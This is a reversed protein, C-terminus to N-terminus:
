ENLEKIDDVSEVRIVGPYFYFASPDDLDGVVYIRPLNNQMFSALAIGFEVYMGRADAAKESLLIFVDSSVVGEIDANVFDTVKEQNQVYPKLGSQTTWDVTIEHGGARLWAHVAQIAVKKAFRGAVYVKM